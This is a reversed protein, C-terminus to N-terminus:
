MSQDKIVASHFLLSQKNPDKIVKLDINKEKVLLAIKEKEGKKVMDTLQKLYDQKQKQERNM